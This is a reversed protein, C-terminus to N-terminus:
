RMSKSIVRKRSSAERLGVAARIERGLGKRLKALEGGLALTVERHLIVQARSINLLRATV